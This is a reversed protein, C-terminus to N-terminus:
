SGPPAAAQPGAGGEGAVGRLRERLERGEPRDRLTSLSEVYWALAWIDEAPLAGDWTPMATGPIGAAIVRVLDERRSEDRVSRLAHWTFDPALLAVREGRHRYDSPMLRSDHLDTRAGDSAPAAGGLAGRLAIVEGLSVYAPHCSTCQAVGHYVVSGRAMADEARADGWPDPTAEIRRGLPAGQWEEVDFTKIYQLIADLSEPHLRSGLMATGHLGQNVIRALDDDSPLGEVVWGFKFQASTLDRPPPRMSPLSAPGEGRGDEGHCARCSQAYEQRGRELLEASVHRGHIELGRPFRAILDNSAPACALLPLSLILAAKVLM